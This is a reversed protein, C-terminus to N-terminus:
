VEFICKTNKTAIIITLVAANVPIAASIFGFHETNTKVSFTHPAKTYHNGTNFKKFDL